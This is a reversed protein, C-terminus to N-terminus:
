RLSKVRKVNGIGVDISYDGFVFGILSHSICDTYCPAFITVFMLVLEPVRHLPDGFLIDTGTSLAAGNLM